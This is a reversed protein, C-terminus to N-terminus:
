SPTPPGPLKGQELWSHVQRVTYKVYGHCQRQKVGSKRFQEYAGPDDFEFPILTRCEAAGFESRFSEVLGRTFPRMTDAVQKPDPVVKGGYLGLAIEAGTLAGCVSQYRAIGGGFASAAM